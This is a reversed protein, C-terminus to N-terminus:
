DLKPELDGYPWVKYLLMYGREVGALVGNTDDDNLINVESPPAQGLM